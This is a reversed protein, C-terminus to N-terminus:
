PSFSVNPLIYTNFDNLYDPSEVWLKLTKDRVPLIVISGRKTATIQGDVRVGLVKPTKPLSYPAVTVRGQKQLGQYEVLSQSYKTSVIQARLAFVSKENNTSPVFNPNFYADLPRGDDSIIYASWTKPYELHLSGFTEAGSYTKLPNKAAEAYKKADETQVKKTNAQVATEIKADVNNKYDQKGSNAWVGFVIAGVLLVALLAIVAIEAAMGRQDGARKMSSM